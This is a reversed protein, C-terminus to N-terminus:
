NWAERSEKSIYPLARSMSSSHLKGFHSLEFREEVTGRGRPVTSLNNVKKKSGTFLLFPESRM